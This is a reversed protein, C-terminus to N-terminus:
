SLFFFVSFAVFECVNWPLGHQQFITGVNEYLVSIEEQFKGDKPGTVNKQTVYLVQTYELTM